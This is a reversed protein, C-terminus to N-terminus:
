KAGKLKEVESVLEGLLAALDAVAARDDHSLMMVASPSLILKLLAAQVRKARDRM